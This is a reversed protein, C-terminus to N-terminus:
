WGELWAEPGYRGVPLRRQGEDEVRGVKDARRADRDAQYAEAAGECAQTHTRALREGATRDHRQRQRLHDDRRQNTNPDRPPERMHPKHM